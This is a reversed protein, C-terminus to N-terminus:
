KSPSLANVLGFLLFLPGLTACAAAFSQSWSRRCAYKWGLTALGLSALPWLVLDFMPSHDPATHGALPLFIAALPPLLLAIASLVAADSYDSESAEDIGAIAAAIAVPVILCGGGGVRFGSGGSRIDMGCFIRNLAFIEDPNVTVLSVM